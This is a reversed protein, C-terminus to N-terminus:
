SKILLYLLLSVTKRTEQQRLVSKINLLSRNTNVDSKVFLLNCLEHWTYLYRYENTKFFM